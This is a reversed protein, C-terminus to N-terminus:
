APGYRALWMRESHLQFHNPMYLSELVFRVMARGRLSMPAM